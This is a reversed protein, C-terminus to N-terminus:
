AGGKLKKVDEPMLIGFRRNPDNLWDALIARLLSSCNQDLRKGIAELHDVTSAELYVVIRKRAM